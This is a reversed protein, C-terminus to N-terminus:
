TGIREAGQRYQQLEERVAPLMYIDEIPQDALYRALLAGKHAPKANKDLIFYKQDRIRCPGSEVPVGANRFSHEVVTVGLREAM